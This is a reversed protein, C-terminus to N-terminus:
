RAGTPPPRPSSASCGRRNAVHIAKLDLDSDPSPFGYAHAGSLYVVVHDRRSSEEDLVRNVVAEQEPRFPRESTGSWPPRRLRMVGSRARCRAVFRRALEQGIRRLLADARAVDPRKPLARHTARASSSPRWAGRRRRCFMRSRSKAASSRSSVIAFRAPRRSCPPVRRAALGHRDRAPARPQVREEAAARAAARLERVSRARLSGAGRIRERRAPRPRADLSLAAERVGQGAAGRRRRQRKSGPRLGQRPARRGRRACRRITM